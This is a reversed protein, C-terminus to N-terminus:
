DARGESAAAPARSATLAAKAAQVPKSARAPASWRGTLVRGLFTENAPPAAAAQRVPRAPCAETSKTGRAARDKSWHDIAPMATAPDFPKLAPSSADHCMACSKADPAPVLGAGKAVEADRMVYNPWYYQGVGHCTECTVGAEGGQAVDRAHCQLCQPNKQDAPTLTEFAKAHPTTKWQDYAAQHCVRCSAPGIFGAARADGAWAGVLLALLLPWRLRAASM